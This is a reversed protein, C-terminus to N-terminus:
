LTKLFPSQSISKVKRDQIRFSDRSIAKCVFSSKQKKFNQLKALTSYPEYDKEWKITDLRSLSYWFRPLRTYNGLAITKINQLLNDEQSM